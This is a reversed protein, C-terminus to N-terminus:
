KFFKTVGSQKYENRTLWDIDKVNKESWVAGGIVPGFSDEGRSAQVKVAAKVKSKKVIDKLESEIRESMGNFLLNGGGIVINSLLKGLLNLDEDAALKATEFITLPLNSVESQTIGTLSPEFMIEPILFCEKDLNMKEGSMELEQKFDAPNKGFLEFETKLNKCTYAMQTKIHQAVRYEDAADIAFGSKAIISITYKTADQGSLTFKRTLGYQAKGDIIPTVYTLASGSEVSLGNKEKQSVGRFSLVSPLDFYIHKVRFIEFLLEAISEIHDQPMLNGPIGIVVPFLSPDKQVQEFAFTLIAEVQEWDMILGRQIPYRLAYSESSDKKKSSTRVKKLAQEGVLYDSVSLSKLKDLPYAVVTPFSIVQDPKDSMAVKTEYAGLDIVIVPGSVDDNTASVVKKVTTTTTTAPQADTRKPPPM